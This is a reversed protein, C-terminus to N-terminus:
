GLLATIEAESLGLAALKLKGNQKNIEKEEALREREAQELSAQAMMAEREAIEEDTLPIIKIKEPHGEPLSCDVEIRTPRDTM